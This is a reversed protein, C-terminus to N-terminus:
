SRVVLNASCVVTNRLWHQGYLALLAATCTEPPPIHGPLVTARAPMTGPTWPRRSDTGHPMM